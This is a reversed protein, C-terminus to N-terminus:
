VNCANIEAGKSVLLRVISHSVGHVALMLLTEGRSNAQKVEVLEDEWWDAIITRFGFYCIALM